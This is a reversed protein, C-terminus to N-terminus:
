SSFIKLNNLITRWKKRQKTRSSLKCMFLYRKASPRNCNGRFPWKAIVIKTSCSKIVVRDRVFFTLFSLLWSVSSPFFTQACSGVVLRPLAHRQFSYVGFSTKKRRKNKKRSEVNVRRERVNWFRPGILTWSFERKELSSRFEPRKWLDRPFRRIENADSITTSQKTLAFFRNGATVITLDTKYSQLVALHVKTQEIEHGSITDPEWTSILLFYEFM